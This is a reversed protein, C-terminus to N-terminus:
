AEAGFERIRRAVLENVDLESMGATTRQHIEKYITALMRGCERMAALQEPTKRGTILEAM